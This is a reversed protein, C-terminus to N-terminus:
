QKDGKEFKQSLEHIKDSIAAPFPLGIAKFNSIISELEFIVLTVGFIECVGIEPLLNGIFDPLLMTLDLDILCDFIFVVVICVIMATKRIIGNSGIGSKLKREKIARLVGFIVDAIILLALIKIVQSSAMDMIIEHM